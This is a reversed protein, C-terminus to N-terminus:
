CDFGSVKKVFQNTLTAIGSTHQLLNLAVREGSFIAQAPGFIKCLLTGAKQYSGEPVFLQIEIRPDIKKFLPELFPLGAVVGAQKLIFRVSLLSDDPICAQSTIDGTRIDEEIAVDLLHDIYDMVNM